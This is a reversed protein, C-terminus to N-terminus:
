DGHFQVGRFCVIPANTADISAVFVACKSARMV